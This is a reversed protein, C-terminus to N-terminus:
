FPRQQMWRPIEFAEPDLLQLCNTAIEPRDTEIPDVPFWYFECCWVKKPPNAHQTTSYIQPTNCTQDTHKFKYKSQTSSPNRLKELLLTPPFPLLLVNCQSCDFLDYFPPTPLPIRDYSFGSDCVAYKRQNSSDCWTYDSALSLAIGYPITRIMNEILEPTLVGPQLQYNELHSAPSEVGPLCAGGNQRKVTFSPELSCSEGTATM